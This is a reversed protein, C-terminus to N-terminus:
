FDSPNIPSTSLNGNAIKYLTVTFGNIYNDVINFSFEEDAKNYSTDPGFLNDYGYWARGSAYIVDYTGLPVDINEISGGRVFVTLVDHGSFKDVLKVLYHSGRYTRIEFPAIREKKSFVQLHGSQPLPQESTTEVVPDEKWHNAQNEPQSPTQTNGFSSNIPKVPTKYINKNIERLIYLLNQNVTGNQSLGVDKQFAKIASATKKGYIGDIPGPKYGFGSLLQQTELTIQKESLVPISNNTGNSIQQSTDPYTHALESQIRTKDTPKQYNGAIESNTTSKNSISKNSNDQQYAYKKKPNLSTRNETIGVFYIGVFIAIALFLSFSVPNFLTKYINTIQLISLVKDHDPLGTEPHAFAGEIKGICKPGGELGLQKSIISDIENKVKHPWLSPQKKLNINKKGLLVKWEPGTAWKKPYHEHALFMIPKLSPGHPNKKCHYFVYAYHDYMPGTYDGMKKIISINIGTYEWCWFFFYDGWVYANGEIDDYWPAPKVNRKILDFVQKSNVAPTSGTKSDEPNGYIDSTLQTIFSFGHSDNNDTM